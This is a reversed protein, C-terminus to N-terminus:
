SNIMSWDFVRYETSCVIFSGILVLEKGPSEGKLDRTKIVDLLQKVAENVSMYRPPEYVKKGRSFLVFIVFPM